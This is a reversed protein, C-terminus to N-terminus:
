PEEQAALCFAHVDQLIGALRDVSGALASPQNGLDSLTAEAAKVLDGAPHGLESLGELIRKETSIWRGHRAHLAYAMCVVARYTLGAVHLVDARRASQRAVGLCLDAEDLLGCLARRLPQHLGRVRARLPFLTHDPDFLVEAHALEAAYFFSGFGHPHGTRYSFSLRGRQADEVSKGVAALNRQVLDVRRNGISLRAGGDEAGPRGHEFVEADPDLAGLVRRLAAADPPAGHDHYLGLDVNSLADAADRAWSGGLTIACVGPVGAVDPIIATVQEPPTM